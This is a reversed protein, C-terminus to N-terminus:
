RRRDGGDARPPVQGVACLVEAVKRNGGEEATRRGSSSPLNADRILGKRKVATVSWKRYFDRITQPPARLIVDRLGIPMRHAYRHAGGEGFVKAWYTELLRESV